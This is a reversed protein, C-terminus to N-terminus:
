TSGTTGVMTKMPAGVYLINIICYMNYQFSAILLNTRLLVEVLLPQKVPKNPCTYAAGVGHL